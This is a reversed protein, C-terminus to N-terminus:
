QAPLLTLSRLLSLYAESPVVKRRAMAARAVDIFKEFRFSKVGADTIWSMAPVTGSLATSAAFMTGTGIISGTMIRTCIAAKVHDGVIAGLFQQGSREHSAPRGQKDLPRCPVEAYTNLLNSNTTGAGLNAWEGIWSDGLHGEHSKNAFGQFITGGIEGAVKCWPGIATQAKILSRDLVASHEGIYAPGVVITGPRVTAGAAVVIPGGQADLVVTPWLKAAPDLRVRPADGILTVGPPVSIGGPEQLLIELDIDICADRHTRVHWPRLLLATNEVTAVRIGSYDGALVAAARQSSVRAHVVLRSAADVVVSGPELTGTELLPCAGNVLEVEGRLPENVPLAHSERALAEAGAPVILGAPGAKGAIRARHTFRELTTLAGTRVDFVPRLDTLPSLLHETRDTTDFVIVSPM